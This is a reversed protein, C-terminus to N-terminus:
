YQQQYALVPADAVPECNSTTVSVIIVNYMLLQRWIDKLCLASPNNNRDGRSRIVPFFLELHDQSFKYCLVCKLLSPQQIYTDFVFLVSSICTMFSIVGTKRFTATILEGTSLHQSRLYKVSQTLFARWLHENGKRLPVKFGKAFPNRSNLIDFLRDVTRIFKVTAACCNKFKPLKMNIACFELTDAVSSSLTRAALKVKM